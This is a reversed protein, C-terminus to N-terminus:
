QRIVCSVNSMMDVVVLIVTRLHIVFMKLSLIFKTFYYLPTIIVMVWQGPSVTCTYSCHYPCHNGKQGPCHRFQNIPFSRRCSLHYTKSVGM